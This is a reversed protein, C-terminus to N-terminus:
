KKGGTLHDVISRYESRLWPYRDIIDYCYRVAKMRDGQWRALVAYVTPTM